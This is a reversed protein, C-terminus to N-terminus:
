AVNANMEINILKEVIEPLLISPKIGFDKVLKTPNGISVQIDQIRNFLPEFNVCDETSLDLHEFVLSAFELLSYGVGTCIVYEDFTESKCLHLMIDVYEEAWGWDRVGSLAGFSISGEGQKKIEVAGSILKKSFYKKDRFESEHNFLIGSFGKVNFNKRYKVVLKHAEMKAIAYPSCPSFDTLEDAFSANKGFIESSSPNFFVSDSNLSRLSNLFNKTVSVISSRTETPYKFSDGVSSQGSFSLILDPKELKVLNEVESYELLNTTILKFNPNQELSKLRPNLTQRSTGIVHNGEDLLKRAALFGDQGTVGTVIINKM